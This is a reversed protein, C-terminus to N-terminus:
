AVTQISVCGRVFPADSAFRMKDSQCHSPLIAFRADLESLENSPLVINHADSKNHYYHFATKKAVQGLITDSCVGQGSLEECFVRMIHELERMEFLTSSAERSRPSFSHISPHQLSYYIPLITSEFYFHSPQMITPIYKKLGYTELFIDQLLYMPLSDETCAPAYGPVAGLAITFLHKATDILYPNLRLNRREQILSFAIDYYVRNRDYEFKRWATEYLYLKLKMWQTDAHLYKVWKESFYVICVKWDSTQSEHKIIDRFVHWHDYLSKPAMDKINFRRQLNIHNVNCGINPLMFVSRAGATVTLLGNPAYVRPSHCGLVTSFPFFDGPTYLLWPITIKKDKLDIFYELQKELVMGMPSGDQGYGLHTKIDKPIVSDSLQYYSGEGDPLYSSTTDGKLAGYPLYVLFLPFSEDPALEDVMEAFRPEVSAVRDRVASWHTKVVGTREDQETVM